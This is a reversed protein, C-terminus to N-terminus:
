AGINVMAGQVKVTGTGKDTVATGQHTSSLTSGSGYTNTAGDITIGQANITIKSPGCELTISDVALTVKAIGVSLGIGTETLEVLSGAAPPVGTSINISPPLQKMTIQPSVGPLGQRIHVFSEPGTNSNVVCVSGATPSTSVKVFSPQAMGAQMQVAKSGQLNVLGNNAAAGGGQATISTVSPGGQHGESQICIDGVARRTYNGEAILNNEALIQDPAVNNPLVADMGSLVTREAYDVVISFADTGCSSQLALGAAQASLNTAKSAQNAAHSIEANEKEIEELLAQCKGSLFTSLWTAWSPYDESNTSHKVQATIAVVLDGVLATATTLGAMVAAPINLYKPNTPNKAFSPAEFAYLKGRRVNLVSYYQLNSTPGIVMSNAGGLGSLVAAAIGGKFGPLLGWLLAEPDFCFRNDSGLMIHATRDGGVTVNVQAGLQYKQSGPLISKWFEAYKSHPAFLEGPASFWDIVGGGGGSSPALAARLNGAEGLVDGPQAIQIIPESPLPKLDSSLLQREVHSPDIYAPEEATGGGGGLGMPLIGVVQIEPGNTRHFNMTESTICEHTESHMHVHENGVTDYFVLMNFQSSPDGGITCSKFGCAASNQPMEFPPMNQANYVSGVVVPRDPDGELFGVLVEQGIRPWFFAGWGQGAWVQSVRLWCSSGSNNQGERDWHFQVKVRGYIDLFMQDGSPGVITATQLGHVRPRPTVRQPRFPLAEPLCAFQNLYKFGAGGDAARYNSPLEAHHSVETLLYNGDAHPHRELTFKCGPILTACNSQGTLRIAAAAEAEIRVKATAVNDTYLNQLDAPRPAGGPDIGDYRQSYRGPFEYVELEADAGPLQHTVQGVQVTKQIAEQAELNKGPLEFTHDWLTCQSSRIEQRKRWNFVCASDRLGGGLADYIMTSPEAVNRLQFPGDTLVLTHGDQEHRFYYFIGEEEMLRCAFAFDTEQFQVCYNRPQYTASLEQTTQMGQFVTALIEPVSKQQFIRSSFRRTALWPTPVIVALYHDFENDNPQLELSQVLGNFYRTEGIPGALEATVLQGLLKEFPVDTGRPTILQLEFQFLRSLAETGSLGVLLLVDDGLPTKICLPRNLQTYFPM